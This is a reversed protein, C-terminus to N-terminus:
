GGKNECISSMQSPNARQEVPCGECGCDGFYANDLVPVPCGQCPNEGDAVTALYADRGKEVLARRAERLACADSQATM